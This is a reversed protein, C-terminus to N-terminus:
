PGSIIFAERVLDARTKKFEAIEGESIQAILVWLGGRFEPVTESIPDNGIESEGRQSQGM